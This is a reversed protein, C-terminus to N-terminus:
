GAMIKLLDISKELNLRFMIRPVPCDGWTGGLM